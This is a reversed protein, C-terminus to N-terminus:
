KGFWKLPATTMWPVYTILLVGGIMVLLFPLLARYVVFMPKEFRYAALCLNIGVPPMLYGLELNSLFIIGMQVPDIGYALTLPKLLPVIVLIAAFIDMLSGVVLLCANLLLLFLVKSHIHAQVWDVISSPIEADVLYNTFGLAVGLILLIGGVVSACEVCVRVYDKRLSIGRYVFVEIVLAALATLAAAETLTGFGGFLGVIMIAPILLEWKAEWMAATSEKLSFRDRVTESRIGQRVGMTAALTVMLLGPLLGGIFLRDIATAAYVGYLIVPLSPPFLLGLSGSATLLGISFKEPYRAKILVPVLLGGLSLITLGSGGWTFIACTVVTVIAMGGPAWSFLASFVRLFRRTAGGEVMLYGAFTFLPISPLLPSAVLRYMEVPVSAVPTGARWFLLLAFGGFVAFIPLGAVVALIMVLVGVLFVPSPAPTGAYYIAVPFILGLAALARGKATRSALWVARLAIVAFGVPMITVAVWKALVDQLLWSGGQKEAIMFQWSAFALCVSVTALVAYAVIRAPAQWRAPLLTSASLSLLNGSRAALAAGLFGIWLTLQQVIVASGPIGMWHFQRAAMESVPLIAMASLAIVSLLNEASFLPPTASPLRDEASSASAM